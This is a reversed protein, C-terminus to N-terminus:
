WNCDAGPSECEMWVALQAWAARSHVKRPSVSM